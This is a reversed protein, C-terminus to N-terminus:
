LALYDIKKSKKEEVELKMSNVFSSILNNDM